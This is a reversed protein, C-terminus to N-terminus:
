QWKLKANAPLQSITLLDHAPNATVIPHPRRNKNNLLMKETLKAM